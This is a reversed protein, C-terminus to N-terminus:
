GSDSDSAAAPAPQPQKPQQQQQQQQGAPRKKGLTDKSPCVRKVHGFKGCTGCETGRRIVNDTGMVQPGDKKSVTTANSPAPKNKKAKASAARTPVAAVGEGIPRIYKVTQEFYKVSTVHADTFSRLVSPAWPKPSLLITVLDSHARHPDAFYANAKIKMNARVVNAAVEALFAAAAGSVNGSVIEWKDDAWSAEKERVISALRRAMAAAPESGEDKVAEYALQLEKKFREPYDSDVRNLSAIAQIIGKGVSVKFTGPESGPEFRMVTQVFQNIYEEAQTAKRTDQAAAYEKPTPAALVPTPAPTPTPTATPNTTPATTPAPAALLSTSIYQVYNQAKTLDPGQLGGIATLSGIGVSKLYTKVAESQFHNKLFTKCATLNMNTADTAVTAAAAAAATAAAAAGDAM